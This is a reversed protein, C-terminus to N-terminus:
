CSGSSGTCIRPQQPPYPLHGHRSDRPSHGTWNPPYGPSPPAPYPDQGRSWNQDASPGSTPDCATAEAPIHTMAVSILSLAVIACMRATIRRIAPMRTGFM